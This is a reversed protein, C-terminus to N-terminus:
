DRPSASSTDRRVCVDLQTRGCSEGVVVEISQPCSENSAVTKIYEVGAADYTCQKATGTSREGSNVALITRGSPATAPRPESAAQNSAASVTIRPPCIEGLNITRTYVSGAASYMCQKTQGTVREGTKLATRTQCAAAPPSAIAIVVLAFVVLAPKM